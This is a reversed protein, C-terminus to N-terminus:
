ASGSTGRLFVDVSTCKCRLAQRFTPIWMKEQLEIRYRRTFCGVYSIMMMMVMMMMLKCAKWSQNKPIKRIPSFLVLVASCVKVVQEPRSGFSKLETLNNKDLIDLAQQAVLLDRVVRVKKEEEAAFNDQCYHPDLHILKDEQYGIFYLSYKPRGGIIGICNDLSLMASELIRCYSRIRLRRYKRKGHHWPHHMTITCEEMIDQIYGPCDQAVYVHFGDLDTIEQTALWVAQRLQHAVPGPQYWDGPKKSSEKGPSVLSFEEEAIAEPSSDQIADTGTEEAPSEVYIESPSQKMQVQQQEFIMHNTELSASTLEVSNEMSAPGPTSKQHYCRPKTSSKPQREGSSPRIQLIRIPQPRWASSLSKSIIIVVITIIHHILM